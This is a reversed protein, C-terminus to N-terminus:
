DLPRVATAVVAARGVPYKASWEAAGVEVANERDLVQIVNESPRRRHGPPMVVDFEFRQRVKPGLATTPAPCLIDITDTGDTVRVSTDREGALSLVVGAITARVEVAPDSALLAAITHTTGRPGETDIDSAQQWRAPWELPDRPLASISGYVTNSALVSPPLDDWESWDDNLRVVPGREADLREYSGEGLLAAIRDLWDGLKPYGVRFDDGDLTWQFLTGGEGHPGDLEVSVWVWSSYAVGFLTAPALAPFEDRGNRWSDLAFEPTVFSPWVEVNLTRPDVREWFRRVDGPLRLPAIAADIQELVALDSPPQPPEVGADTLADTLADISADITM